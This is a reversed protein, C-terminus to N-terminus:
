YEWGFSRGSILAVVALGIVLFGIQILFGRTTGLVACTAGLFGAAKGALDNKGADVDRPNLVKSGCGIIRHIELEERSRYIWFTRCSSHINIM